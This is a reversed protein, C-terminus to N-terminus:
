SDSYSFLHVRSDPLCGLSTDELDSLMDRFEEIRKLADFYAPSESLLCDWGDPVGRNLFSFLAGATMVWDSDAGMECITDSSVEEDTEVHYFSEYDVQLSRHCRPCELAPLEDGSTKGHLLRLIARQRGNLAGVLFRVGADTVPDTGPQWYPDWRLYVILACLEVSDSQCDCEM